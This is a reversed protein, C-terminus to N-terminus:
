ASVLCKKRGVLTKQRTKTKARRKQPNQTHKKTKRTFNGTMQNAIVSSASMNMQFM